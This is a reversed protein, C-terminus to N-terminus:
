RVARQPVSLLKMGEEKDAAFAPTTVPKACM